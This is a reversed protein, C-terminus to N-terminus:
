GCLVMSVPKRALVSPPPPGEYSDQENHHCLCVTRAVSLCQLWICVSVSGSADEDGEHHAWAPMTWPLFPCPVIVKLSLKLARFLSSATCKETSEPHSWFCTTRTLTRDSHYVSHGFAVKRPSFPKNWSRSGPLLRVSPSILTLVWPLFRSCFSYCSM